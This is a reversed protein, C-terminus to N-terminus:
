NFTIDSSMYTKTLTKIIFEYFFGRFKVYKQKLIRELSEQVILLIDIKTEPTVVFLSGRLINGQPDNKRSGM